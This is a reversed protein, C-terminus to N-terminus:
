WLWIWVAYENVVRGNLNNGWWLNKVEMDCVILKRLLKLVLGLIIHTVRHTSISDTFPKQALIYQFFHLNPRTNGIGLECVVSYLAVWSTTLIFNLSLWAILWCILISAFIFRIIPLVPYIALGMVVFSLTVVWFLQHFEHCKIREFCNRLPTNKIWSCHYNNVQNFLTLNPQGDRVLGKDSHLVLVKQHLSNM